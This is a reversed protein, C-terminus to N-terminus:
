QEKWSKIKRPSMFFGLIVKIRLLRKVRGILYRERSPIVTILKIRNGDSLTKFEDSKIIQLYYLRGILTTLFAFKVGGLVFARREFMKSKTIENRM